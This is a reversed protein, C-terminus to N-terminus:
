FKFSCIQLYQENLVMVMSSRKSSYSQIILYSEVVKDDANYIKVVRLQPLFRQGHTKQM